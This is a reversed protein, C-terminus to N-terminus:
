WKEERCYKWNVPRTKDPSKGSKQGVAVQMKEGFLTTASPDADAELIYTVRKCFRDDSWLRVGSPCQRGEVSERRPEEKLVLRGGAVACVPRLM